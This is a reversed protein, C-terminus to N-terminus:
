VRAAGPRTAGQPSGAAPGASRCARPRSRGRAARSARWLPLDRAGTARAHIGLVRWDLTAARWGPLLGPDSSQILPVAWAALAMGAAAGVAASWGCELVLLRLLRAPAGGLAVRMALERERDLARALFLHGVNACALLLVLAVTGLLLVVGLARGGRPSARGGPAGGREM